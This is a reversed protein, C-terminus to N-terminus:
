VAAAPLDLIAREIARLRDRTDELVIDNASQITSLGDLLEYMPRPLRGRALQLALRQWSQFEQLDAALEGVLQEIEAGSTRLVALHGRLNNLHPMEDVLAFWEMIRLLHRSPAEPKLSLPLRLIRKLHMPMAPLSELLSGIGRLMSLRGQVQYPVALLWLALKCFALEAHRPWQGAADGLGMADRAGDSAQALKRENKAYAEHLHEVTIARELLRSRRQGTWRAAEASLLAM